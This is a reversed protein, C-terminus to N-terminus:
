LHRSPQPPKTKGERLGKGFGKTGPCLSEPIHFQNQFQSSPLSKNNERLLTSAAAETSIAVEPNTKPILPM